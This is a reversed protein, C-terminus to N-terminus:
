TASAHEHALDRLDDLRSGLGWQDILPASIAEEEDAVNDRLPADPNHVLRRALYTAGEVDLKSAFIRSPRHQHAVAKVVPEPLGWLGLLYAGVEAHTVGFEAREAELQSIGAKAVRDLARQMRQGARSALVLQGVPSLMAALFGDDIAAHGKLIARAIIASSTAQLQISQTSLGRLKTSFMNVIGVSLVLNKVLALGLFVVAERVSKAPTRKGAFASCTLQLMRSSTAVDAAIIEAVEDVTANEGSLAQTLRVYTDPASPLENDGAVLKRLTQNDLLSRLEFARRLVKGLVESDLPKALFQHAVPATRCATERNTSGSLIIRVSGPHDQQVHKLLTAGDMQDMNLDSVVVDAPGRNLEAIADAGSDVFVLDWSSLRHRLLRRLSRLVLRDDDVFLIRPPELQATAM